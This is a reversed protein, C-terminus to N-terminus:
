KQTPPKVGGTTPTKPVVTGGKHYKEVHKNYQEVFSDMASNMAEVDAQLTEVQAKLADFEEQTPGAMGEPPQCGIITLCAVLALLTTIKIM